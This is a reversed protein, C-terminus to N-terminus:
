SADNSGAAYVRARLILLVAMCLLPAVALLLLLAASPIRGVVRIQRESGVLPKGKGDLARFRVARVNRDVPVRFAILDPEEDKHAGQADFPVITYGLSSGKSQEVSYPQETLLSKAAGPGEVEIAAHPVQQLRVWKAINPNGRAANNVTKEYALDNFEDELFPQLYLDASGDVYLVSSPTVSSEPRTWKDSPIVEFGVGGRRLRDHVIVTKESGEMVTGDGLVFRVSYSGPSLNLIFAQQM